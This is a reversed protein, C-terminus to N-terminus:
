SQIIRSPNIHANYYDDSAKVIKLLEKESIEEISVVDNVHCVTYWKDLNASMASSLGSRKNHDPKLYVGIIQLMYKKHEVHSELSDEACYISLEKWLAYKFDKYNAKSFSEVIRVIYDKQM